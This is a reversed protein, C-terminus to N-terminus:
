SDRIAGLGEILTKFNVQGTEDPDYEKMLAEIQAADLAEGFDTMARAFDKRTMCYDGQDFVKFESFVEETKQACEANDYFYNMMDKFQAVSFADSIGFEKLIAKAEANSIIHRLCRVLDVFNSKPLSNNANLDFLQYVSTNASIIIMIIMIIMVMIMIMIM